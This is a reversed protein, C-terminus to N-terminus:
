RRDHILQSIPHDLTARSTSVTLVTGTAAFSVWWKCCVISGCSAAKMGPKSSGLQLSTRPWCINFVPDKVGGGSYPLIAISVKARGLVLPTHFRQAWPLLINDVVPASASFEATSREFYDALVVMHAVANKHSCPLVSTRWRQRFRRLFLICSQLVLYSVAQTEKLERFCMLVLCM